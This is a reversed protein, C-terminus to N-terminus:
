CSLLFYTTKIIIQFTIMYIKKKKPSTFPLGSWYEQRPTGHISSGPLIYDMPDWLTLCSKAILGCCCFYCILKLQVVFYNLKQIFQLIIVAILRTGGTVMFNDGKM